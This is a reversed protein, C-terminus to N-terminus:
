TLRAHIMGKGVGTVRGILASRTVGEEHLANLLDVTYQEPVSILLGGSTQADCLMLRQIEGLDDDWDVWSSYYEYNGRSGGAIAGARALEEVREMFPVQSFHVEAEVGSGRTMESLHGMLGFGTVDTCANVPFNRMVM